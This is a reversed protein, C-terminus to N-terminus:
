NLFFFFMDGGGLFHGRFQSLGPYDGERLTLQNVRSEMQVGLEGKGYLKVYECARPLLVCVQLPRTPLM